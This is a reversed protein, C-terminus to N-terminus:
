RGSYAVIGIDIDLVANRIISNILDMCYLNNHMEFKLRLVREIFKPKVIFLLVSTLITLATTSIAKSTAYKHHCIDTSSRMLCVM